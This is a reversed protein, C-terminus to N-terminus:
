ATRPSVEIWIGTRISIQGPNARPASVVNANAVVVGSESDGGAGIVVGGPSALQDSPHTPSSLGTSDWSPTSQTRLMLGPGNEDPDTPPPRLTVAMDVRFRVAVTVPGAFSLKQHRVLSEEGNASYPTSNAPPFTNMGDRPGQSNELM